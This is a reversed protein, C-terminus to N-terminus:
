NSCELSSVNSKGKHRFQVSNSKEKRNLQLNLVHQCEMKILSLIKGWRRKQKKKYFVNKKHFKIKGKTTKKDTYLSDFAEIM